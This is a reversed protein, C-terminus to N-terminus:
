IVEKDVTIEVEADHVVTHLFDNLYTTIEEDSMAYGYPVQVDFTIKKREGPYSPTIVRFDHFSLKPDLEKLATGVRHKLDAVAPDTVAVPDAHIVATCHYKMHLEKEIEDIINHATVINMTDAVEVHLSMFIRSPGYNHVVIDHVGLIESHRSAVAKIDDLFEKEPPEGLLPSITNRAAEYGAKLILLGVITGVYGDINLNFRSSLFACALVVSTTIVDSISDIATNKLAEAHILESVQMNSFFMILKVVISMVLIGGILANFRTPEPKFIKSVSEEILQFGTIIILFAVILGAIYETRGHGFPHERDPARGSLKYGALTIVSSAADSLNNFADGMISISGSLFGALLKSLFLVINLAVGFAGSLIGYSQRVEPRETDKYNKIFFGALFVIM